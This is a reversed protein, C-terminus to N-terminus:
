WKLKGNINANLTKDWTKGTKFCNLGTEEEVLLMPQNTKEFHTESSASTEQEWKAEQFLAIDDDGPRAATGIRIRSM